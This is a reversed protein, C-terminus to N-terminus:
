FTLTPFLVARHLCNHLSEFPRAERRLAVHALDHVLSIPFKSIYHSRPGNRFMVSTRKLFKYTLMELEQSLGCTALIDACASFDLGVPEDFEVM